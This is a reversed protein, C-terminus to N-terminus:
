PREPRGPDGVVVMTGVADMAGLPLAHLLEPLTVARAPRTGEYTASPDEAFILRRSPSGARRLVGAGPM